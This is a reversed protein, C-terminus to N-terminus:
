VLCVAATKTLDCFDVHLLAMGHHSTRKIENIILSRAEYETSHNGEAQRWVM